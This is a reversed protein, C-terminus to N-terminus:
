QVSRDESSDVPQGSCAEIVRDVAKEAGQKRAYAEGSEAIIRGNAARLRWRYGDKAPYVQFAPSKM